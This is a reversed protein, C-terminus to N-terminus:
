MVLLRMFLGYIVLMVSIPNYDYITWALLFISLSIWITNWFDLIKTNGATSSSRCWYERCGRRAPADTSGTSGSVSAPHEASADTNVEFYEDAEDREMQAAPGEPVDADPPGPDAWDPILPIVCTENRFEPIQFRCFSIGVDQCRFTM